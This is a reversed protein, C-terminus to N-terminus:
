RRVDRLLREVVEDWNLRAAAPHAADGLARARDADTTLARIAEAVAEATPQVVLGGVGDRVFELPGGSDTTTIVPKRALHAEVTVMGFDEDHPAYFVARARGYLEMLESEDVWGRFDVRDAVRLRRARAILADREEGRGVIVARAGPVRALADLLLDNRKLADLRGVSLVYGDDGIWHLDTRQPPPFLVEADIGNFERLRSATNGSITLVARAGGLAAEDMRRVAELMAVGSQDDRFQAFKTGHFDYAQRHQHFLWVVKMPHSTLYSPFKTGIVVDVPHTLKALDLASWMLANQLLSGSPSWTSPLTILDAQHGRDVLASVLQEALIEAGGRQFPVQPLCVAVRLGSM